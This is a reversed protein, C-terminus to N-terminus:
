QFIRQRHTRRQELKAVHRITIVVDGGDVTKRQVMSRPSRMANNPAFPDPLDVNSCSSSANINGTEPSILERAFGKRGLIANRGFEAATDAQNKLTGVHLKEVGGHEIFDRERRQLEAPALVFRQTPDILREFHHLDRAEAATRRM